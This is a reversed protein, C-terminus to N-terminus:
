GKRRSRKTKDNSENNNEASHTHLSPSDPQNEPTMVDTRSSASDSGKDSDNLKQEQGSSDNAASGTQSDPVAIFAEGRQILQGNLHVIPVAMEAVKEYTLGATPQFMPKILSETGSYYRKGTRDDIELGAKKLIDITRYLRGLARRVRPDDDGNDENEWDRKFFKTKLYWLCTAVEALLHPDFQPKPPSPPKKRSQALSTMKMLEDVVEEVVSQEPIRHAPHHKRQRLEESLSKHARPKSIKKAM